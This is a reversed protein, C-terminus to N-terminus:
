QTHTTIIIIIILLLSETSLFPLLLYSIIHYTSPQQNPQYFPNSYSKALSLPLIASQHHLKIQHHYSTISYKSCGFGASM